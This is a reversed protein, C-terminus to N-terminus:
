RELETPNTLAKLRAQKALDARTEIWEALARVAPLDSNQGAIVTSDELLPELSGSELASDLTRMLQIIRVTATPSGMAMDWIPDLRPSRAMVALLWTQSVPDLRPYCAIMGDIAGTIIEEPLPDSVLSGENSAIVQTLMAMNVLEEPSIQEGRLDEIVRSAWPVTVRQGDIRIDNFDTEIGMLGPVRSAQGTTPGTNMRFNLMATLDITAGYLPYRDIVTGVWYRRLDVPVTLSEFPM